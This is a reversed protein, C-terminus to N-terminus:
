LFLSVFFSRLIKIVWWCTEAGLLGELETSSEGRVEVGELLESLSELLKERPWRSHPEEFTRLEGTELGIILGMPSSKSDLLVMFIRFSETSSFRMREDLVHQTQYWIRVLIM